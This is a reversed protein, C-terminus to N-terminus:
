NCSLSYLRWDMDNSQNRGRRSGHGEPLTSAHHMGQHVARCWLSPFQECSHLFTAHFNMIGNPENWTKIAHAAAEAKTKGLLRYVAVPRACWRKRSLHKHHSPVVCQWPVIRFDLEEVHEGTSGICGSHPRQRTQKTHINEQLRVYKEEPFTAAEVTSM